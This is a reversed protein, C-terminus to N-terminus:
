LKDFATPSCFTYGYNTANNMLDRVFALRRMRGSDTKNERMTIMEDLSRNLVVIKGNEVADGKRIYPHVDAILQIWKDMNVEFLEPTMHRVQENTLHVFTILLFVAFVLCHSMDDKNFILWIHVFEDDDVTWSENPKKGVDVFLRM